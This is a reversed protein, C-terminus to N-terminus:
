SSRTFLAWRAKRIRERAVHPQHWVEFDWVEVVTFGAAEQRAKRAADAAKDVLSTHYKESQIEVILPLEPDKFDVRG